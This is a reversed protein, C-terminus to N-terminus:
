MTGNFQKILRTLVGAKNHQIFQPRTRHTDAHLAPFLHEPRVVNGETGKRGWAAVQGADADCSDGVLVLDQAADLRHSGLHLLYM